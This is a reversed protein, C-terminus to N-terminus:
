KAQFCKEFHKLSKGDNLICTYSGHQTALKDHSYRMNSLFVKLFKKIVCTNEYLTLLKRPQMKFICRYFEIIEINDFINCLFSIKELTAIQKKTESKLILSSSFNIDILDHKM